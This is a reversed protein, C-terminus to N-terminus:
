PSSGTRSRWAEWRQQRQQMQEQLQLRQEPSLIAHVDARMQSLLSVLESALESAEHRAEQTAAEYEADDPTATMLKERISGSRARLEQWRPRYASMLERISQQQEPTLQLSQWHENWHASWGFPGSDTQDHDAQVSEASWATLTLPCGLLLLAVHRSSRRPM